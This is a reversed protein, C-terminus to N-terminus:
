PSAGELISAAYSPLLRSAVTAAYAAADWTAGEPLDRPRTRVHLRSRSFAYLVFLETLKRRVRAHRQQEDKMPKTWRTRLLTKLHICDATLQDIDHRLRSRDIAPEKSHLM